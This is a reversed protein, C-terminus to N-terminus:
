LLEKEACVVASAVAVELAGVGVGLVLGYKGVVVGTESEFGDM